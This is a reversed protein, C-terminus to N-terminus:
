NLDSEARGGSAFRREAPEPTDVSPPDVVVSTTSQNGDSAAIAPEAQPSSTPTPAPESVTAHDPAPLSSQRVPATSEARVHTADVLQPSEEWIWIAASVLAVTAVVLIMRSRNM